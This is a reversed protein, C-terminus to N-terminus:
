CLQSLTKWFLDGNSFQLSCSLLPCVYSKVLRKGLARCRQIQHPAKKRGWNIEQFIVTYDNDIVLPNFKHCEQKNKHSGEAQPHNAVANKISRIIRPLMTPEVCHVSHVIGERNDEDHIEDYTPPTWGHLFDPFSGM